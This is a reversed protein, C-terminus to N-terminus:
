KARVIVVRRYGSSRETTNKLVATAPMASKRM